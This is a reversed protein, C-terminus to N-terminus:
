YLVVRHRKMAPSTGHPVSRKAHTSYSVKRIQVSEHDIDKQECVQEKPRYVNGATEIRGEGNFSICHMRSTQGGLGILMRVGRVPHQLPAMVIKWFGVFDLVLTFERCVVMAAGRGQEGAVARRATDRV